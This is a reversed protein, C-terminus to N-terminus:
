CNGRRVRFSWEEGRANSLDFLCKIVRGVVENSNGDIIPETGTSHPALWRVHDSHIKIFVEKM